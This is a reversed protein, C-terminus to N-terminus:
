PQRGTYGLLKDQPSAGDSVPVPPGVAGHPRAMDILGPVFMGYGTETVAPDLRTNPGTAKALDWTHVLHDLALIVLFQAASMEGAPSAIQAELAGPRAARELAQAVASRYSATLHALDSQSAPPTDSSVGGAM